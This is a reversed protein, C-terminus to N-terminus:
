PRPACAQAGTVRSFIDIWAKRRAAPLSGKRTESYGVIYIGEDAVSFRAVTSQPEEGKCPGTDLEVVVTREDQRIVTWVTGLCESALKKFGDVFGQLRVQHQADKRLRCSVNEKANDHTQGALTYSTFISSPDEDRRDVQWARGDFRPVAAAATPAPHAVAAGSPMSQLDQCAFPYGGDCAKKFLAAARAPDRAVGEGSSYLRGLHDCPAIGGM